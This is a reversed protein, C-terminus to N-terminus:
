GIKISCVYKDLDEAAKINNKEKIESYYKLIEENRIEAKSADDERLGKRALRWPEESHTLAELYKAGYKGYVIWVMELINIVSEEFISKDLEKISPLANYGFSKFQEYVRPIVPGHVWAQFTDKILPTKYYAMHWSQAYYMLKHLKLHTIIEGSEEDTKNLFFQVIDECVLENHEKRTNLSLIEKIGEELKRAAVKTVKERNRELLERMKLPNSLEKLRESYERSPVLGKQYRSITKDGWGLLKSLPEAGINYKELLENIEKITAIGEKERYIENARSINEDSLEAIYIEEGCENCYAIKAIYEFEIGKIKEKVVEEKMTYEVHKDCSPCYEKKNM